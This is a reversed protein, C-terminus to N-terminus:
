ISGVEVCYITRRRCVIAVDVQTVRIEFKKNEAKSRDCCSHAGIEVWDVLDSSSTKCSDGSRRIEDPM